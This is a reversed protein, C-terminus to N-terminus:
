IKEGYTHSSGYDYNFFMYIISWFIFPFLLRTFRRKLFITLPMHNGLVLAGSLMLFVPVCFRVSSDYINGAWWTKFTGPTKDFKGLLLYSVHLFIVGFTALARLNDMWSLREKENQM